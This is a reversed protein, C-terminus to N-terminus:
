RKALFEADQRALFSHKLGPPREALWAAMAQEEALIPRPVQVAPAETAHSDRLSDLFTTRSDTM